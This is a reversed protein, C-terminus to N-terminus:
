RQFANYGGTIFWFLLLLIIAWFFSGVLSTTQSSKPNADQDQEPEAKQPMPVPVMIYQIQSTNNM